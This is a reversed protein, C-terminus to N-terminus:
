SNQKSAPEPYQTAYLGAASPDGQPSPCTLVYFTYCVGTDFYIADFSRLLKTNRSCKFTVRSISVKLLHSSCNEADAYVDTCYRKRTKSYVNQPIGNAVDSTSRLTKCRSLVQVSKYM